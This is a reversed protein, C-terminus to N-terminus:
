DNIGGLVAVKSVATDKTLCAVLYTIPVTKLTGQGDLLEGSVEHPGVEKLQLRYNSTSISWIQGACIPTDAPM